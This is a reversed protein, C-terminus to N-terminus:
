RGVRLNRTTLLYLFVPGGVLATVVGVPFESPSLATRAVTDALMLFMGGVFGAAPLLLRHDASLVLRVAHPVILGVFGIIGSFSVVAGTLLAAAVFVLKKVREVEVGLSRATEEGLTLLNLSQAQTALIMLGMGLYLALVGLTPYDPGTLSGMLWAYMGFARNPDAVSTLFMIFASFIANLVVGALLLTYISFGFGVSSIRYMIVLSLLAGAFACVPLASVSLVSIGVGFLLAIAAGLAAGSSIGIIFPDALPNRLLAQLAVGVMALSGGVFFALLLRPLRVQLLIVTTPDTGARSSEAGPLTGVLISWIRSFPIPETGFGLCLLLALVALVLSIGVSVLWGRITLTPLSSIAFPLPPSEQGWKSSVKSSPSITFPPVKAM